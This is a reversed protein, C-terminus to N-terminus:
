PARREAALYEWVSRLGNIAAAVDGPGVDPSAREVMDAIERAALFESVVERDEGERVVPDDLEYGRAELVHEVLDALEPLAEVPEDELQPELAQMQTEWEHWDLGPDLVM